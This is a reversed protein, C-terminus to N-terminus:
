GHKDILKNFLIFVSKFSRLFYLYVDIIGRFDCGHNTENNDTRIEKKM